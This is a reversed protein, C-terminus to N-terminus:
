ANFIALLQKELEEQDLVFQEIGQQLKEQAMPHSALHKDFSANDIRIAYDQEEQAAYDKVSGALPRDMSNLQDILDPSITLLDCGALHEIQETSRFSAAMVVTTIRNAKYYHYVRKVSEIGPDNAPAFQEVGQDKKYWDTIRGVFPSILFAQAQACAIAQYFDFLLTMNCNIGKAQLRSAAQVGQWTAAIKILLKDAGLNISQAIDILECARQFTAEEGYALRADVEISVKGDVYESLRNAVLVLLWSQSLQLQQAADETSEKARQVAEIVLDPFASKAMGKLILTPNTTIGSLPAYQQFSAVDSSDAVVGGLARLQQLVTM